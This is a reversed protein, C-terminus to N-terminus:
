PAEEAAALVDRACDLRPTRDEAARQRRHGQVLARLARQARARNSAAGRLLKEVVPRRYRELMGIWAVQLERELDVQQTTAKPRHDRRVQVNCHQMRMSSFMRWSFREDYGRGGLYYRLPMAIQFLLFAAILASALARSNRSGAVKTTPPASAASTVRREARVTRGAGADARRESRAGRACRGASRHQGKGKRGRKAM